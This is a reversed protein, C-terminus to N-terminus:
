KSQELTSEGTCELYWKKLETDFLGAECASEFEEPSMKEAAEEITVDIMNAGEVV